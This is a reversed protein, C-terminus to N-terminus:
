RGVRWSFEQFDVSRQPYNEHAFLRSNPKYRSRNHASYFISSILSISYRHPRYRVVHKLKRTISKFAISMAGSTTYIYSSTCFHGWNNDSEGLLPVSVLIELLPISLPDRVTKWVPLVQDHNIGSSISM